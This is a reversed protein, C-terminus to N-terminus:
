PRLCLRRRLHSVVLAAAMCQLAPSASRMLELLALIGGSYPQLAVLLKGFDGSDINIKNIYVQIVKSKIYIDTDM